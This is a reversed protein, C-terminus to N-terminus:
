TFYCLLVKFENFLYFFLLYHCKQLNYRARNKLLYRNINNKQTFRFTKITSYAINLKTMAENAWKERDRNKDPHYKSALLKYAKTVEESTSNPIIKLIKYSSSIDM